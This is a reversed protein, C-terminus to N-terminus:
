TWTRAGSCATRGAHPNLGAVAVRPRACRRAAPRHALRIAACSTTPTMAHIANPPSQHISVLLVRLEDTALMMALGHAPREALIETHGPSRMGAMRLAEKNIPATVLGSVEGVLALDIGRRHLAFSAAGARADVRGFTLEPPLDPGTQLVHLVGASMSAQAATTVVEVAIDVGVIRAARRLTQADGVVLFPAARASKDGVLKVIIEPGIGAPDGMTVALPATSPNREPNSM